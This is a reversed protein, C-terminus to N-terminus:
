PLTVAYNCSIFFWGVYILETVFKVQGMLGVVKHMEEGAGLIIGEIHPFRFITQRSFHIIEM